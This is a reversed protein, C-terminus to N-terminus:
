TRPPEAPRDTEEVALKKKLERDALREERKLILMDFIALLMATLALWGCAIWFLIFWGPHDRPNIVPQLVTAGTALLVLAAILLVLMAKRRTNQDRIVGRTAHIVFSTTQLPKEPNEM